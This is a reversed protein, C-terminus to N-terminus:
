VLSAFHNEEAGHPKAEFVEYETFIVVLVIIVQAKFRTLRCAM